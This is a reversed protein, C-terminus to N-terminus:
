QDLELLFRDRSLGSYIVSDHIKLLSDGVENWCNLLIENISKDKQFPGRRTMGFNSLILSACEVFTKGNRDLKESDRIIKYSTEIYDDRFRSIENHIEQPSIAMGESSFLIRDKRM